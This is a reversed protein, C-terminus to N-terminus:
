NSCYTHADGQMGSLIQGLPNLASGPEISTLVFTM